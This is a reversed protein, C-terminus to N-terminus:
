LFGPLPASHPFVLAGRMEAVGFRLSPVRLSLLLGSQSFCYNPSIAKNGARSLESLLTGTNKGTLRVSLGFEDGNLSRGACNPGGLFLIVERCKMKKLHEFM